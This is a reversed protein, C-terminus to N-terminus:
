HFHIAAEPKKKTKKAGDVKSKIKKKWMILESESDRQESTMPCTSHSTHPSLPFFVSLLLRFVTSCQSSFSFLLSLDSLREDIQADHPFLVALQPRLHEVVQALVGLETLMLQLLPVLAEQLVTGCTVESYVLEFFDVGIKKWVSIGGLKCLMDESCEVSIAIPSDVESLEDDCQTHCWSSLQLLLQLPGETHIIQIAIAVDTSCLHQFNYLYSYIEKQQDTQCTESIVNMEIYAFRRYWACSSM